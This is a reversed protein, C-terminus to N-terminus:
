IDNLLNESYFEYGFIFNIMSLHKINVKKKQEYLNLISTSFSMTEMKMRRCKHLPINRVSITSCNLSCTFNHYGTSSERYTPTFQANQDSLICNICGIIEQILSSFIKISGNWISSSSSSVSTFQISARNTLQLQAASM